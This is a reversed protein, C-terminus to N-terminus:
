LCGYSSRDARGYYDQASTEQAGSVCMSHFRYFLSAGCLLLLFPFGFCKEFFRMSQLVAAVLGVQEDMIKRRHRKLVAVCVYLHFHDSLYRSWLVEWLRLVNDYEL